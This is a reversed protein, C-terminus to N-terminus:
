IYQITFAVQLSVLVAPFLHHQEKLFPIPAPPVPAAYSCKIKRYIKGNYRLTEADIYGSRGRQAGNQSSTSRDTLSSFTTEVLSYQSLRLPFPSMDDEYSTGRLPTYHFEHQVTPRVSKGRATLWVWDLVPKNAAAGAASECGPGRMRSCSMKRYM